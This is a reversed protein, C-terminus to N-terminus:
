FSYTLDVMFNRGERPYDSVTSGLLSSDSYNKDFLNNITGRIVLGPIYDSVMLAMDTLLYGGFDDRSDGTKRPKSGTAFLNVNFNLHDSIVLNGGMNGKYKAVDEVLSGDAVYRVDQWTYNLYVTHRNRWYKKWELEMGESTLGEGNSAINGGTIDPQIMNDYQINFYTLQARYNRAVEKSLSLEYTDTTEPELDPNGVQATNNTIYLNAFSPAKFGSAYLAKLNWNDRFKWVAAIKPNTSGGFDSYEDHRLGLTMELEDSVTWIDQMYIAWIDHETKSDDIWNGTETVDQISGLPQGFNPSSIDSEFTTYFRADYLRRREATGGITLLNYETLKYDFQLEGGYAEMEATDHAIMGGPFKDEPLLEWYQDFDTVKDAFLRATM